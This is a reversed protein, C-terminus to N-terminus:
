KLTSQKNVWQRIINITEKTKDLIGYMEFFGHTMGQTEHYKTEIKNQSLTKYYEYGQDRLPDFQATIILAPPLDNFHDALIPSALWNNSYEPNKLYIHMMTAMQDSTLPPTMKQEEFSPYRVSNELNQDVCPYILIQGLLPHQTDNRLALSVVASLNGGASDGAVFISKPNIHLTEAQEIIWKTANIADHAAQPFPHEPALRYDVSIVNVEADNVLHRCLSDHTEISGICWGGGHFYVLTPRSAADTHETVYQRARIKGDQLPIWLDNVEALEIKAGATNPGFNLYWNRTQEINPNEADGIEIQPANQAQLMAFFQALQPDFNPLM